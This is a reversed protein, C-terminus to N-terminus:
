EHISKTGCVARLCDNKRNENGHVGRADLGCSHLALPREAPLGLRVGLGLGLGRGRGRGRGLELGVTTWVTVRPVCVVQRESPHSDDDRLIDALREPASGGRQAVQTKFAM